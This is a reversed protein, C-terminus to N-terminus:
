LQFNSQSIENSFGPVNEVEETEFGYDFFTQYLVEIMNRVEELTKVNMKIDHVGDFYYSYVGDIDCKEMIRHAYHNKDYEPMNTPDGAKLMRVLANLMELTLKKTASSEPLFNFFAPLVDHQVCMVEYNKVNGLQGINTMAWAAERKAQMNSDNALMDTIRSMIVPEYVIKDIQTAAGASINSIAWAAEKRITGEQHVLLKALSELVNLSLVYETQLDSGTLINGIARLAPTQVQVMTHDLLTVLHQVSMTETVYRVDEEPADTVYSLAWCADRLTPVDSTFGIISALLPIAKKVKEFPRNKGRCFNSLAWTGTRIISFQQSQLQSTGPGPSPGNAVGLIRVMEHIIAILPEVAGRVMCFDREYTGEGAINGIAWIAQEKVKLDPSDMVPILAEVGHNNIIYHTQEKDGSAINTITWAAEFQLATNDHRQLFSMVLPVVNTNIVENIPPDQRKSLMRRLLHVAQRLDEEPMGEQHNTITAVIAQLDIPEDTTQVGEEEFVDGRRKALQDGRRTTRLETSSNHRRQRLNDISRGANKFESQRHSM